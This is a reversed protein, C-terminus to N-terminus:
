YVLELRKLTADPEPADFSSLRAKQRGNEVAVGYPYAVYGCERKLKQFDTSVMARLGTGDLFQGAFEPVEVPVAIVQTDGWHLQAMHKAVDFCHSCEPNFFYLFFKGHGLAYPQGNVTVSAPAPAGSQQQTEVGFSVLAFVTVTALIVVASRASAPRHAWWGAVMALLLMVADGAFFGPGVVRKVWPFCSCDAGRLTGYNAAFYAVFGVLLVGILLAGWRRFRPVLIWVAGVTEAIGMALALVLNAPHPVHLEGIRVAWGQPDTIKWVGSLLFLAALPIAGVWSLRSKWSAPELPDVLFSGERRSHWVPM